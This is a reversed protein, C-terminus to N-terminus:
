DLLYPSALNPTFALGGPTRFAAQLHLQMGRLEPAGPLPIARDIRGSADPVRAHLQM